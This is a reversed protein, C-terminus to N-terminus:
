RAHGHRMDMEYGDNKTQIDERIYSLNFYLLTFYNNNNDEVVDGGTLGPGM